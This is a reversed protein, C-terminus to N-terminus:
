PTRRCGGLAVGRDRRDLGAEVLHAGLDRRRIGNRPKGIRLVPDALQHNGFAALEVVDLVDLGVRDGVADEAQDRVRRQTSRSPSRCQTDPPRGRLPRPCPQATPAKPARSPRDVRHGRMPLSWRRSSPRMAGPVQFMSGDADAAPCGTWASRRGARRLVRLAPQEVGRLRHVHRRVLDQRDARQHLPFDLGSSKAFTARTM